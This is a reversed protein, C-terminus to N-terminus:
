GCEFTLPVLKSKGTLLFVDSMKAYSTKQLPLYLQAYIDAFIMGTLSINCFILPVKESHDPRLVIVM